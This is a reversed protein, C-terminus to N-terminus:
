IHQLVRLLTGSQWDVQKTMEGNESHLLVMLTKTALTVSLSLPHTHSYTLHRKHERISCFYKYFAGWKERFKMKRFAIERMENPENNIKKWTYTHTHWDRGREREWKAGYSINKSIRFRFSRTRLRKMAIHMTCKLLKRISYELFSMHFRHQKNLLM